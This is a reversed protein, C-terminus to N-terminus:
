FAWIYVKFVGEGKVSINIKSPPIDFVQTYSLRFDSSQLIFSDNGEVGKIRISDTYKTDTSTIAIRIQKYKSTDVNGFDIFECWVIQKETKFVLASAKLSQTNTFAFVFVAFLPLLKRM